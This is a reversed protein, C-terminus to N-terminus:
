YKRGELVKINNYEKKQWRQRKVAEQISNRVKQCTKLAIFEKQSYQQLQMEYNQSATNENNLKFYNTVKMM